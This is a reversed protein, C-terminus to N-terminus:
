IKKRALEDRKKTPDRDFRISLDGSGRSSTLLKYRSSVIHSHIIDEPYNGSSTTLKFNRFLAIPLLNALRIDNCKANRSNDTKKIVEFNLQLYSKLLSTVSDKRPINIYLQSNPTNITSTEAPSYRIYDRKLIRRDIEYSENLKFM